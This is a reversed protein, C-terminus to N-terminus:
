REGRHVHGEALGERAIPDSPRQGLGRHRNAKPWDRMVRVVDRSALRNVGGLGAKVSHFGVMADRPASGAPMLLGNEALFTKM